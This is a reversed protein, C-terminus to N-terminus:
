PPLPQLYTYQLLDLPMLLDKQETSPEFMERGWTNVSSASLHLARTLSKEQPTTM